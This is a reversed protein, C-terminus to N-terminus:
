KIIIIKQKEGTTLNTLYYVGPVLNSVDISGANNIATTAVVSGAASVLTFRTKGPSQINIYNKAPNPYAIFGKKAVVAVPLIKDAATYVPQMMQGTSDLIVFWYDAVGFQPSTKDGSIDSYSTGGLLYYGEKVQRVSTLFDANNGGVTKQWQITGSSDVKVLWYDYNGRSNETKNGSADSASQGGLAYGGDMTKGISALYDNNTGGFTKDWQVNGLSDTKVLWYDLLGINAATKEGSINSQSAGSLLYGGDRTQQLAYLGDTRNGGITKDWQITGSADIKVIWYDADGRSNQTKDGSKNGPSTSGILYGGDKTQVMSYVEDNDNSGITKDWQVNGQADTKVVWIDGSGKSNATKDGSINSFSAGVLIYGKDHTQQVFYLYDYDAGGITKDWQKNGASDLKVIWYDYQNSYANQSKEGSINSFSSGGVIYGGDSTQLISESVDGKKGGIAKDWQIKGNKALKVVWFDFGGRSPKTKNGSIGSMSYGTVVIGGDKTFDWASFDEEANGGLSKERFIQQATAECCIFASLFVLSLLKKKM